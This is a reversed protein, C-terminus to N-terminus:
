QAAKFHNLISTTTWHPLSIIKEGKKKKEQMVISLQVIKERILPIKNQDQLLPTLQSFHEEKLGFNIRLLQITNEKLKESLKNEAELQKRHKIIFNFAIIKKGPRTPKFVFYIDGIAALEKEAPKIVWKILDRTEAYKNELLLKERFNEVSLSYVEKDKWHSLIEYIKQTYSNNTLYMVDEALYTLGNFTNLLEIAVLSHLRIKVTREYKQVEAREILGTLVTREVPKKNKKGKVEPLEIKISVDIGRLKHLAKKVISYNNHNDVLEVLPFSLQVTDSGKFISLQEIPLGKEVAAIEKQLKAIIKTLIRKEIVTYNWRAMTIRWPQRIINYQRIETILTILKYLFKIPFSISESPMIIFTTMVSNLIRLNIRM